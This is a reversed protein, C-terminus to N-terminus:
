EIQISEQPYVGGTMIRRAKSKISAVYSPDRVGMRVTLTKKAPTTVNSPQDESAVVIYMSTIHHLDSIEAFTGGGQDIAIERLAHIARITEDISRTGNINLSGNEYLLLVCTSDKWVGFRISANMMRQPNYACMLRGILMKRQADTRFRGHSVMNASFAEIEALQVWTKHVRTSSIRSCYRRICPSLECQGSVM